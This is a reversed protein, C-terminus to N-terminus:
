NLKPFESFLDLQWPTWTFNYASFMKKGATKIKSYLISRNCGQGARGVVSHFSVYLIIVYRRITSSFIALLFADDNILCLRLTLLLLRSRGLIGCGNRLCAATLWTENFTLTICLTNYNNSKELPKQACLKFLLRFAILLFHLLFM